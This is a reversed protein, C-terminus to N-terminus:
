SFLSFDAKLTAIVQTAPDLVPVGAVSANPWPKLEVKLTMHKKAVFQFSTTNSTKEVNGSSVTVRFQHLGPPVYLADYDARNGATGKYFTRGDMEVTFNLNPPAHGLDFKLRANDKPDIKKPDFGL